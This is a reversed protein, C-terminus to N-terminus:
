ANLFTQIHRAIETTCEAVLDHTASPLVELRANPLRQQLHQGVAVPAIPDNGGFVLLVPITIEGLRAGFDSKDDIFWRPADPRRQVWAARWDEAGLHRVNIGGSTALLVLRRIRAPHELVTRLALAGGMSLAVLDCQAPLAQLAVAYLDELSRVDARKAAAGLGPYDVLVPAAASKVLPLLPDFVSAFGSAGPWYAIPPRLM